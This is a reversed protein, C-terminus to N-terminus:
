RKQRQLYSRWTNLAPREKGAEDFLGTDRWMATIDNKAGVQQWLKDYDRLVFNNVFVFEKKNAEQLLFKIYNNQKNEDSPILVSFPTDIKLEQAIYGTETIAIPKNGALTSVKEFIDTPITNTLFKTGYLYLSVGFIDTYNRLVRAAEEQADYDKRDEYGRLMYGAHFSCLIPLKPYLKKLEQYMFQHFVLYDAWLHPQHGLLLNVEISFSFYDPQFTEITRKCYNLYAKKVRESSFKENKWADPLPMDNREGRYLALGNRYFDLPSLQVFVKHGKPTRAKRFRWDDQIHTSFPKDELAEGWPVGEDFSHCIMDAEKGITAYTYDAAEISVEYPFPTFSMYFSRTEPEAQEQSQCSSSIGLLVFLMNKVINEM